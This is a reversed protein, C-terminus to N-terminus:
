LRETAGTGAAGFYGAQDDMGKGAPIAVRRVEPHTGGPDRTSNPGFSKPGDVQPNPKM